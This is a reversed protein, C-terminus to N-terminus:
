WDHEFSKNYLGGGTSMNYCTNPDIHRYINGIEIQISVKEADSLLDKKALVDYQMEYELKFKSKM